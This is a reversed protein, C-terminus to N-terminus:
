AKRGERDQIDLSARFIAKFIERVEAPGFPELAASTLSQLMEEERKADYGDLGQARKLAAIELVVRGRKQISSLIQENLLDIESRLASLRSETIPIEETARPVM